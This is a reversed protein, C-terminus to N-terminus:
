TVKELYESLMTAALPSNYLYGAALNCGNCLWGRFRGTDHCHDMHLGPKTSGCSHCSGTFAADLERESSICPMYGRKKAAARSGIIAIKSKNAKNYERQRSAFRSLNAKRITRDADTKCM